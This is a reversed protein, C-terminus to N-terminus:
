SLEAELFKLLHDSDVDSEIYSRGIGRSLILKMKGGVNKKDQGMATLLEAAIYPGGDLQSPHAILNLSEIAQEARTAEASECIGLRMSYRYAMAMGTGVAEGHLLAPGFDNAKELAHAFTHGLNLLARKGQETEDEAVIRAKSKCSVEVAQALSDLEGANLANAHSEVFEFFAPDDILGYKIVEALGARMERPPLTSLVDLDALVLEPQNFMGVLNKGHQTNIATKGGVSSDVQSLLTTPMQVFKMGRKMLGAVLGTLDGIVGGGFAIVVDKRDAGWDMLQDLHRELSAFSKTKEGPPNCIVKPEIGAGCLSGELRALHYKQVNEDTIIFVRGQSIHPQLFDASREVLNQGIVIDYSREGLEVRVQRDSLSTSAQYMM